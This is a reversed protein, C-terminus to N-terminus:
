SSDLGSVPPPPTTPTVSALYDDQQKQLQAIKDQMSAVQQQLATINVANIDTTNADTYPIAVTAAASGNTSGNNATNPTSTNPTSTDPTSTNATASGNDMNDLGEVLFWRCSFMWLLIGILGVM